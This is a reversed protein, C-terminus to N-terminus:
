RLGDVVSAIKPWVQYDGGLAAFCIRMKESPHTAEKLRETYDPMNTKMEDLKDILIDETFSRGRKLEYTKTIPVSIKKTKRERKMIYILDYPNPKKHQTSTNARWENWASEIEETFYHELDNKWVEKLSQSEKLNHYDFIKRFLNIKQLSGM